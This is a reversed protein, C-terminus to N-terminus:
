NEAGTHTGASRLKKKGSNVKRRDPLDVKGKLTSIRQAISYMSRHLDHAIEANSGGHRISWIIHEDEDPSYKGKELEGQSTM